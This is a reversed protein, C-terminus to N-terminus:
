ETCSDAMFFFARSLFYQVRGGRKGVLGCLVACGAVTGGATRLKGGALLAQLLVKQLCCNNVARTYAYGHLFLLRKGLSTGMELIGHAQLEVQM